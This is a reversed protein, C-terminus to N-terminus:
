SKRRTKGLVQKRLNHNNAICDPFPCNFCDVNFICGMGYELNAVYRKTKDGIDIECNYMNAISKIESREGNM